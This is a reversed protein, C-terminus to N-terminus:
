SCPWKSALGRVVGYVAPDRMFKGDKQHNAAWAVFAAIGQNRTATPPYCILRKLHERDSVADHYSVAGALFGECLEIAERRQPDDPGPTCVHYLDETTKLSLTTTDIASATMPWVCLGALAILPKLRM